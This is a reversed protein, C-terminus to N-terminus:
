WFHYIYGISPIFFYYFATGRGQDQWEQSPGWRGELLGGSGRLHRDQLHDVALLLWYQCDFNKVQYLLWYQCDIIWLWPDIIMVTTMLCCDNLYMRLDGERRVIIVKDQHQHQGAETPAMFICSPNPRPWSSAHRNADPGHLHMNEEIGHPLFTGGCVERADLGQPDIIERITPAQITRTSSGGERLVGSVSWKM